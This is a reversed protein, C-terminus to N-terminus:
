RPLHKSPVEKNVHRKIFQCNMCLCQYDPPFGADRIARYFQMGTGIERKHKMGGGKVHDM